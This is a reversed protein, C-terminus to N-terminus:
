LVKKILEKIRNKLSRRVIRCEGSVIVHVIIEGGLQALFYSGHARIVHFYLGNKEVVDGKYYRM